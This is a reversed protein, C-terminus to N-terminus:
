FVFITNYNSQLASYPKKNQSLLKMCLLIGMVGVDSLLSDVFHVFVASASLKGARADHDGDTTVLEAHRDHDGDDDEQQERSSAQEDSATTDPPSAAIALLGWDSRAFYRCRFDGASYRIM